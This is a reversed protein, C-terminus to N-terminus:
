LSIPLKCPYACRFSTRWRQRAPGGTSRVGVTTPYGLAFCNEQTRLSKLPQKGKTATPPRAPIIHPM